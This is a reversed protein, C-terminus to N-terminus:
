CAKTSAPQQPLGKSPTSGCAGVRCSARGIRQIHELTSQPQALHTKSESLFQIESATITLAKAGGKNRDAKSKIAILALLFLPSLSVRLLRRSYRILILPAHLFCRAGNKQRICLHFIILIRRDCCFSVLAKAFSQRLARSPFL